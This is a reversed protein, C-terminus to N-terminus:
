SGRQNTSMCHHSVVLLALLTYVIANLFRLVLIWSWNELILTAAFRNGLILVVALMLVNVGAVSRAVKGATTPM